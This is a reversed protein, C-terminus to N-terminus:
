AEAKTKKLIKIPAITLNDRVTLNDFLNFSQFVMGIHSRVSKINKNTVLEGRYYIEGSNIKELGNISRLLTSKGGGSPGCLVVIEHEHIDLSMNDLVTLDGFKKTVNKLSLVINNNDSM